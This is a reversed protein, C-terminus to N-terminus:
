CKGSIETEVVEQETVTQCQQEYKVMYETECKTEMTTGCQEQAVTDYETSCVEEVVDGCQEEEM